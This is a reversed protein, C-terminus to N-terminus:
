AAKNNKPEAKLQGGTLDQLELQRLRPPYEGWQCVAAPSLGLARALELQTGYHAIADQTTM